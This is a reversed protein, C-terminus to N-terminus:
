WHTMRCMHAKLHPGPYLHSQIWVARGGCSEVTRGAYGGPWWDTHPVAARYGQALLLRLCGSMSALLGTSAASPSARHEMSHPWSTDRLDTQCARSWPAHLRVDKMYLLCNIM